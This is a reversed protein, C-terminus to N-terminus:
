YNAEESKKQVKDEIRKNNADLKEKFNKFIKMLMNRGIGQKPVTEKQETM